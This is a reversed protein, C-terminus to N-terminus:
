CSIPWRIGWQQAIAQYTPELQARLQARVDADVLHAEGRGVNAAPLPPCAMPELELFALLQQWISQPTAFLVESSLVLLQEAAFLAQVRALQQEYRSRSLYSCEQHMKHRGDTAQLAQEAGALRQAEAALAQELPLAEFGLRRAHFYHSLTREVPDRLLVILRARPILQAMRQPAWPHFLYYPTIDGCIQGRQAAHFQQRYWREGQAFHLSFFQLEKAPPLHVQPHQSLLAHLTTTGAKQAGLGVFGPLPPLLPWHWSVPLLLWVVAL